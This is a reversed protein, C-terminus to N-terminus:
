YILIDNPLSENEWLFTAPNKFDNTGNYCDLKPVATVARLISSIFKM